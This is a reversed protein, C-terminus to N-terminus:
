LFNFAVIIFHDIITEQDYNSFEFRVFNDDLGKIYNKLNNTILIDPISDLVGKIIKTKSSDSVKIYIIECIDERLVKLQYENPISQNLILIKNQWIKLLNLLNNFKKINQQAVENNNEFKSNEYFKIIDNLESFPLSWLALNWPKLVINYNFIWQKENCTQIIEPIEKANIRMPCITISFQTGRQKCIREFQEINKFTEALVAGKRIQSYTEPVFSDISVTINFRGSNLIDVVKQNFITGNTTVNINIEPNLQIMREWISYYINILFPEGGTFVAYKLFPIFEDLQKLFNTDYVFKEEPEYNREKQIRSSLSADCMVCALNCTNSLSFDMLVPYGNKNLELYDFSLAAVNGFDEQLFPNSCFNCSDPIKYSLMQKRLTQMEKGFWISKLSRNKLFYYDIHHCCVQVSGNRHFRLAGFPAKCFFNRDDSNRSINYSKKLKKFKRNLLFKFM